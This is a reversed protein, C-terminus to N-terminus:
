HVLRLSFEKFVLPVRQFHPTLRETRGASSHRSSSKAFDPHDAVSTAHARRMRSLACADGLREGGWSRLLAIRCGLVAGRKIRSTGLAQCQRLKLEPRPRPLPHRASIITAYQRCSLSAGVCVVRGSGAQLVYRRLYRCILCVIRDIRRDSCRIRVFVRVRNFKPPKASLLLAPSPLSGLARFVALFQWERRECFIPYGWAM